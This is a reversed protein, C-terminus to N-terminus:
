THSGLSSCAHSAKRNTILLSECEVEEFWYECLGEQISSFNFYPQTLVMSANTVPINFCDKGFLYDWIDRQTDWHLLYGQV